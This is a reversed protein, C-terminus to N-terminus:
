IDDNCDKYSDLTTTCGNNENIADNGDAGLLTCSGYRCRTCGGWNGWIADAGSCGCLTDCGEDGVVSDDGSSGRVFDDGPGGELHDDGADGDMRDNGDGGLLIDNGTDGWMRDDGPGGELFDDATDGYLEDAGPGGFLADRGPNGHLVDDGDDGFLVDNGGEVVAWGPSEGYLEDSGPGGHLEDDGQGGYLRDTGGLGVLCDDGELGDFEDDGATGIFLDPGADGKPPDEVALTCPGSGSCAWRARGLHVTAKGQSAAALWSVFPRGCFTRALDAAACPDTPAFTAGDVPGTAIWTDLGPYGQCEAGAPDPLAYAYLGQHVIFYLNHLLMYDYGNFEGVPRNVGHYMKEPNRWRDDGRWGPVDECGPTGHCPGNCPASSLIQDLRWSLASGPVAGDYLIARALPFIAAGYDMSRKELKEPSWQDVCTALMLGMNINTSTQAFWTADDGALGLMGVTQSLTDRYDEIGFDAACGPGCILNGCRAIADSFFLASGGWEDPPKEGAPDRVEWSHDRLYRVMRDDIARAEHRLSVGAVQVSDPILKAVLALGFQLRIVQDQSEFFGSEIGPVQGPHCSSASEMCGYGKLPGDARPFRYVTHSSDTWVFDAPIDQRQFFGNLAPAGTIGYHSDAAVDLRNFAMLAHYLDSETQATPLGLISLVRHETALTAVYLGLWITGDGLSYSGDADALGPFECGETWYSNKCALTPDRMGLLLSQGAQDGISVFGPQAATGNGRLRLRYRFYKGLWDDEHCAPPADLWAASVQPQQLLFPPPSAIDQASSDAAGSDAAGPDEPGPDAPVGPDADPGPSDPLPDTADATAPLDEPPVLVDRPDTVDPEDWGGEDLPSDVVASAEDAPPADLSLPPAVGGCSLSLLCALCVAWGARKGGPRRTGIVALASQMALDEAAMAPDANARDMRKLAAKMLIPLRLALYVKGFGGSRTIL